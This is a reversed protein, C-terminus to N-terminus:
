IGHEIIDDIVLWAIFGFIIVFRIIRIWKIKTSISNLEKKWIDIKPQYYPILTAAKQEDLAQLEVIISEISSISEKIKDRCKAAHIKNDYKDKKKLRGRNLMENAFSINEEIEGTYYTLRGTKHRITEEQERLRQERVEQARKGINEAM